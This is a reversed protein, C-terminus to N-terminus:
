HFTKLHVQLCQQDATKENISHPTRARSCSCMNAQQTGCSQSISPLPPLTLSARETTISQAALLRLRGNEYWVFHRVELIKTNQGNERSFNVYVWFLTVFIASHAGFSSLQRIYIYIRTLLATISLPEKFADTLLLVVYRCTRQTKTRNMLFRKCSRASGPRLIKLMVASNSFLRPNVLSLAASSWPQRWHPGDVFCILVYFLWVLEM